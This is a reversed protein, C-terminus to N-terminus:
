HRSIFPHGLIILGAVSLVLAMIGSMALGHIMAFSGLALGAALLLTSVVMTIWFFPGSHIVMAAIFFLAIGLAPLVPVYQLM